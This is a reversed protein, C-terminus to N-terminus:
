EEEEEEEGSYDEDCPEWAGDEDCERRFKIAPVLEGDREELKTYPIM